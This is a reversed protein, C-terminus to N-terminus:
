DPPVKMNQQKRDILVKSERRHVTRSILLNRRIYSVVILLLLVSILLYKSCDMYLIEQKHFVCVNINSIDLIHTHSHHTECFKEFHIPSKRATGGIRFKLNKLTRLNENSAHLITM